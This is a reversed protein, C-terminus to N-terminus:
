RLTSQKTKKYNILDAKARKWGDLYEDKEKQCKDLVNEDGVYNYTPSKDNIDREKDNPTNNNKIDEAM